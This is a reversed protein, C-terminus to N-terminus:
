RGALPAALPQGPVAGRRHRLYVEIMWGLLLANLVHWLFHTGFPIVACLPEDLSRLSLSLSVLAASLLLGRGTQPARKRLYLGYLLMLLPLPWYGASIEFFPLQRFMPVTVLVFPVFLATAGLAPWRGLGVFDRNAAFIFILAFVMIFLSDLIGAWVQAHTHFLYSGVGIGALVWVLATALPLGAGRSRRWMVVAAILFAANTVANIPEAWYGPGMRECYADVQRTLEM